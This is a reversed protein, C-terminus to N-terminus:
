LVTKKTKAKVGMLSIELRRKKNLKKARAKGGLSAMEKQTLEPRLEIKAMQLKKLGTKTIFLGEPTYYGNKHIVDNYIQQKKTM